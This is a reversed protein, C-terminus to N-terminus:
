RRPAGEVVPPTPPVDPVVPPTLADLAELKATASENKAQLDDLVAQDAPTWTDPSNQLKAILAAQGAVDGTIGEVAADQRADFAKKDDVYKQLAANM